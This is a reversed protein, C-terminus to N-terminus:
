ALGATQGLDLALVQVLERVRVRWTWPVTAGVWCSSLEWSRWPVTARWAVLLEEV